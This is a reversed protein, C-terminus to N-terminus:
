PCVAAADQIIKCEEVPTTGRRYRVCFNTITDVNTSGSRSFTLVLNYTGVATSTAAPITTNAGTVASPTLTAVGDADPQATPTTLGPYTVSVLNTSSGTAGSGTWGLRVEDITLVDDCENKLAVTINAPASNNAGLTVSQITADFLTGTADKYPRLCCSAPAEQAYVYVTTPCGNIDVTSIAIEFTQGMGVMDISWSAIRPNSTMGSGVSTATGAPYPRRTATASALNTDSTVNIAINGSGVLWPDSATGTGDIFTGVLSVNLSACPFRAENTSFASPAASCHSAAVAYHYITGAAPTPASSDNWTV